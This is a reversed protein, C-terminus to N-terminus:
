RPPTPRHMILARATFGQEEFFNKAARHGPLALADVGVVDHENAFALLGDTIAEGVGVARAPEEVYLETIRALREGDALIEIVVVGFGVVVDDILGVLVCSNPDVLQAALSAEVPERRAERAAWLGGGRMGGLEDHLQGFLAVVRGLDATTAPRCREV